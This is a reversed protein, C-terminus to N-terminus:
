NVKVISAKSYGLIEKLVNSKTTVSMISSISNLKIEISEM